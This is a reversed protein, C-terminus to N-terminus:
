VLNISIVSLGIDSFQGAAKGLLPAINVCEVTLKEM